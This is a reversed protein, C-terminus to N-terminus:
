SSSSAVAHPRDDLADLTLQHLSSLPVETLGRAAPDSVWLVGTGVHHGSKVAIRVFTDHFDGLARREGDVIATRDSVARTVATEVFLEHPQTRDVQFLREGNLRVGEIAARARLLRAENGRIVVQWDRSMMPFVDEPAIGLKAAFGRHDRLRWYNMGGQAEDDLHKTQSLGSAVVLLTSGDDCAARVDRVIRDYLRYGFRIPDDGPRCDPTEISTDFGARDFQRWHHHQYHAVANLFLTYFGYSSTRLVHQFLGALFDDFHGALRWSQRRDLRQRVLQAAITAALRPSVRMRLAAAAGAVVDRLSAPSVAHGQVRRSILAWLARLSEPHADNEKSWPDPLFMGGRARGRFTNMSGLIASEIGRDSLLEWTQDHRHDRADGLRFIGHEAYSKGSHVTAWQIWPELHEYAVESTTRICGLDRDLATFGPISGERSMVDLIPRSVENLELRVVRRYKRSLPFRFRPPAASETATPTSVVAASTM